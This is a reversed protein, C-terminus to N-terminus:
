KRRGDEEATCHSGMPAEDKSMDMFQELGRPFKLKAEWHIKGVQVPLYVDLSVFGANSM